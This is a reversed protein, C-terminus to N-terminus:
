FKGGRKIGIRGSKAKMRAAGIGGGKLLGGGQAVQQNMTAQEQELWAYNKNRAERAKSDRKDKEKRRESEIFAADIRLERSVAKHERKYERRMRDHEAQSRTKNKDKGMIYSTPDEMRPALTEIALDSAKAASRRLLPMRAEGIRLKERLAEVTSKIEKSVVDPLKSVKSSSFALGLLANTIEYFVETESSNLSDAYYTASKTILRLTSILIAAPATNSRMKKRELSLHFVGDFDENEDFFEIVSERFVKLEPIKMASAFTPLPSNQCAEDMKESFINLVGALFSFAEPPVRKAERTYDIMLAALFVGKMVDEGSRIPTQGLTQGLLILAPTVVVHRRDTVPFIHGMARLILTTGSSPWASFEEEDDLPILEADRLRKSHANQLIGLRRKWVAAASEPSDQAMAYLVKTLSDLQDYRGLEKGGEGGKYMADGVGIFRKLLVDYFNQIKEKNRHDLRVSNSKHIREIILSADAGTKAYSGIM